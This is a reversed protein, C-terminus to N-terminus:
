ELATVPHSKVLSVEKLIDLLGFQLEVNVWVTVLLLPSRRIGLQWGLFILSVRKVSYKCPQKANTQATCM